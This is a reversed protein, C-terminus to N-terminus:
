KNLTEPEDPPYEVVNSISSNPVVIPVLLEPRSKNKAGPFASRTLISAEVPFTPIPVVSGPCFNVIAPSTEADPPIVAEPLRCTLPVALIPPSRVTSVPAM